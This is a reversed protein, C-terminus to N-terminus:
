NGYGRERPTPPNFGIHIEGDPLHFVPLDIDTGQYKISITM